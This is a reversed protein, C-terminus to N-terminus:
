VQGDNQGIVLVNGMFTLATPLSTLVLIEKVASGNEHYVCLTGDTAGVALLGENDVLGWALSLISTRSRHEIRVYEVGENDCIYVLGIDTGIALLRGDTSWAACTLRATPKCFCCISTDPLYVRTLKYAPQKEHWIFYDNTSIVGLVTSGPNYYVTRIESKARLRTLINGSTNWVIVVGEKDGSAFVKGDNCFSVSTVDVIHGTHSKRLVGSEINYENVKSGSAVLVIPDLPAIAICNV